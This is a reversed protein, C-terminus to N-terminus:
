GADERERALAILAAGLAGVHQPMPPVYIERGIKRGLTKVVGQNLAVGGTMVVRDEFGIRAAM